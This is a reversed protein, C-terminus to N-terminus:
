STTLSIVLYPFNFVKKNTLPKYSLHKFVTIRCRLDQTQIKGGGRTDSTYIILFYLDRRNFIVELNALLSNVHM